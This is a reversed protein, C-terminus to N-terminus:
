IYVFAFMGMLVVIAVRSGYNTANATMSLVVAVALSAFFGILFQVVLHSSFSFEKGGTSYM